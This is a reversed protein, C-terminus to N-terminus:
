LNKKSKNKVALNVLIKISKIIFYELSDDGIVSIVPACGIALRHWKATYQDCNDDFELVRIDYHEEACQFSIKNNVYFRSCLCRVFPLTAPIRVFKTCFFFKRKSVTNFIPLITPYVPLIPLYHSSNKYNMWETFIKQYMSHDDSARKNPCEDMPKFSSKEARLSEEESLNDIGRIAASFFSVSFLFM